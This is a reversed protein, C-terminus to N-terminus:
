GRLLYMIINSEWATIFAEDKCRYVTEDIRYEFGKVSPAVGNLMFAPVPMWKITRRERMEM